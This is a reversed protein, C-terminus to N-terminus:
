AQTREACERRVHRQLRFARSAANKLSLNKVKCALIGIKFASGPGAPTRDFGFLLVLRVRRPVSVIDTSAM